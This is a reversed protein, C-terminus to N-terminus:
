KKEFIFLTQGINYKLSINNLSLAYIIKNIFKLFNFYKSGRDLIYGLSLTQWYPKEYILIYKKGLLKKLSSKTFYHLHVSLYFPWKDKFIKRALSNHDPVNIIILGKKNLINTTQSITKHLNPIHELVDFFCVIDYKKKIQNLSKRKINVKYKKIGFKILWKNLELGEAILNLDKCAKLFAGGATGVDLIKKGNLNISQNINNITNKFTKVRLLDQSIFKKDQSYSYGQHIINENIRPNLYIFNCRVCKVVQDHFKSSSSNFIKKLNKISIKKNYKSKILIKFKKSSCIPCNIHEFTSKM